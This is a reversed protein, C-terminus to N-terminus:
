RQSSEGSLTQEPSLSTQSTSISMGLWFLPGHAGSPSPLRLADSVGINALSGVSGVVLGVKVTEPSILTRSFAWISLSVLLGSLPYWSFLRISVAWGMPFGLM